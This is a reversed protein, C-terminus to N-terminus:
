SKLSKQLKKMMTRFVDLKGDLSDIGVNMNPIANRANTVIDTAGVGEWIEDIVSEMHDRLNEERSRLKDLQKQFTEVDNSLGKMRKDYASLMAPWDSEGTAKRFNRRKRTGEDLSALTDRILKNM